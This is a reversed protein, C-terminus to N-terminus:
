KGCQELIRELNSLSEKVVEDDPKIKSAREFYPKAVAFQACAKDEIAKGEKRYTAIDMYDVVKKIEVGENYNLVALNYLAEYSNPDKALVKQYNESAKNKAEKQQVALKEAKAKLETNGSTAAKKQQIESILSTVGKEIEVKQETVEALRKKTAAATKPEKKLKANLSAIESDYAALKDQEALLRKDLKDTNGDELKAQIKGLETNLEQGKTDYLLGLNTLNILNNPDKKVMGELDGIAKDINNSAIYVNILENPLDTNTPNVEMGKKLTAAAEDFKKESKYIQAVSYFVSVDKGGNAIFNNLHALAGANNELLQEAIGAYLAATTDKPTISASKGFFEAAKKYNKNNYFGAGQMLFAQGLAAGKLAAEIDKSKKGGAANEIELAKKFAEEAKQAATSDQTCRQAMALYSDGLEVWTASKVAKKANETNKLNKAVLNEHAKCELEQAADQALAALALFSGLASLVLKKM